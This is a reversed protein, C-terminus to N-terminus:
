GAATIPREETELPPLCWGVSLRPVTSQCERCQDTGGGLGCISCKHSGLPAMRISALSANSATTHTRVGTSTTQPRSDGTGKLWGRSIAKDLVRVSNKPDSSITSSWSVTSPRSLGMTGKTGPRSLDTSARTGPRSLDKSATTGPRSLDTGARSRSIENLDTCSQSERLGPKGLPTISPALLWYGEDPSHLHTRSNASPSGRYIRGNDFSLFTERLAPTSENESANPEEGNLLAVIKTLAKDGTPAVLAHSDIPKGWDRSQGDPPTSLLMQARLTELWDKLWAGRVETSEEAEGDTVRSAREPVDKSGTSQVETKKKKAKVVEPQQPEYLKERLLRARDQFGNLVGQNKDVEKQVIKIEETLEKIQRDSSEVSLTAAATEDRIRQSEEMRVQAFRRNRELDQRVQFLTKRLQTLGTQAAEKDKEKQMRLEKLSKELDEHEKKAGGGADGIAKKLDGMENEQDQKLIDVERQLRTKQHRRENFEKNAMQLHTEVTKLKKELEEIRKRDREAAVDAPNKQSRTKGVFGAGPKGSTNLPGKDSIADAGENLLKQINMLLLGKPALLHKRIRAKIVIECVERLEEDLSMLGDYMQVDQIRNATEEEDDGMRNMMEKLQVMEVMYNRQSESVTNKIDKVKTKYTELDKNDQKICNFAILIASEQMATLHKVLESHFGARNHSHKEELNEDILETAFNNADETLKPGVCGKTVRQHFEREEVEMCARQRVIIKKVADLLSMKKGKPVLMSAGKSWRAKALSMACWEQWLCAVKSFGSDVM